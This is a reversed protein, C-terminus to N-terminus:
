ESKIVDAPNESVQYLVDQSMVDLGGYACCFSTFCEVDHDAFPDEWNDIGNMNRGEEHGWSIHGEYGGHNVLVFTRDLEPVYHNVTLEQHVYRAIIIAGTLSVVLGVLNILSYTRMRSLSRLAHKLMYTKMFMDQEKRM